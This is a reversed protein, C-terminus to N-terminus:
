NREISESGELSKLTSSVPNPPFYLDEVFTAAHLTGALCKLNVNLNIGFTFMTFISDQIMTHTFRLRIAFAPFGLDLNDLAFM